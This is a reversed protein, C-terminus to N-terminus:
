IVGTNRNMACETAYEAETYCGWGFSAWRAVTPARGDESYHFLKVFKSQQNGSGLGYNEEANIMASIAEGDAPACSDYRLMDFPFTGAGRVYITNRVHTKKKSM